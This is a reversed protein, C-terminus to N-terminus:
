PIAIFIDCNESRWDQFKLNANEIKTIPIKILEEPKIRKVKTALKRYKIKANFRILDKFIM